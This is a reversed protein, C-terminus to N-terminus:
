GDDVPEGEQADIYQQIMEDTITRSTVACCGRAWFHRGWFQKRLHALEQAMSAPALALIQARRIQPSQLKRADPRAALLNNYSHEGALCDRIGAQTYLGRDNHSIAQGDRIDARPGLSGSSIAFVAVAVSSLGSM